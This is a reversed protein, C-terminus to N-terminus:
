RPVYKSLSDSIWKEERKVGDESQTLLEKLTLWEQESPLYMM